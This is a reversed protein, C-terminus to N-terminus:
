CGRRTKGAIHQAAKTGPTTAVFGASAARVSVVATSLTASGSYPSAEIKLTVPLPMSPPPKMEIVSRFWSDTAASSSPVVNKWIGVGFLKKSPFLLM